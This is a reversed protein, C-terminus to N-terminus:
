LQVDTSPSEARQKDIEVMPAKETPQINLDQIIIANQQETISGLTSTSRISDNGQRVEYDSEDSSSSTQRETYMVPEKQRLANLQEFLIQLHKREPTKKQTSKWTGKSTRPQNARTKKARSTPSLRSWDKKRTKVKLHEPLRRRGAKKRPQGKKTLRITTDNNANSPLQLKELIIKPNKNICEHIPSPTLQNDQIETPQNEALNSYAPNLESVDSKNLDQLPIIIKRKVDKQTFPILNRDEIIRDIKMQNNKIIIDVKLTEDKVCKEINDNRTDVSIVFKHKPQKDKDMTIIEKSLIADDSSEVISKDYLNIVEISDQGSQSDSEEDNTINNLIENLRKIRRVRKVVKDCKYLKERILRISRREETKTEKISKYPRLDKRTIMKTVCCNANLVRNLERRAQRIKENESQIINASEGSLLENDRPTETRETVEKLIASTAVSRNTSEEIDNTIPQVRETPHTNLSSTELHNKKTEKRVREVTKTTSITKRAQYQVDCCNKNILKRIRKTEPNQLKSASIENANKWLSNESHNASKWHHTNLTRSQNNGTKVNIKMNKFGNGYYDYKVENKYVEKRQTLTPTVDQITEAQVEGRPRVDQEERTSESSISIIDVDQEEDDTILEKHKSEALRRRLRLILNQIDRPTVAKEMPHDIKIM